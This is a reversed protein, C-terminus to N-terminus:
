NAPRISIESSSLAEVTGDEYRVILRCESDVDLATARRQATPTIVNIQRGIVLSKARYREAYSESGEGRYCDMFHNLFAAALRNKGDSQRESFVSGAISAIEEPFGGEPSYVNIGIGLVIYDMGGTELNFAGETLIGSVKRDDLIIDNVWKIKADKGAIESIADCAAVAAMTTVKVSQAPSFGVPRLLLSLYLGTDVPSYFSRGMRGRGQTQSGAIIVCGEPAGAAARQRLLANTSTVEDYVEPQLSVAIPALYRRIGEASLRDTGPALCYGRNRVADIEYGEASLANVAKWVATRSVQLRSAIEEGSVYAGRQSELLSLLEQKTSM